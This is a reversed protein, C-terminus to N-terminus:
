GGRGRLSHRVTTGSSRCAKTRRHTVAANISHFSRLFFGPRPESEFGNRDAVPRRAQARRDEDQEKYNLNEGRDKEAGDVRHCPDKKRYEAGGEDYKPEGM